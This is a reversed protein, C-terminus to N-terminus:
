PEEPLKWAITLWGDAADFQAVPLAGLEEWQEPLELAELRFEEEFMPGFRRVLLTRVIQQRTGLRQGEEWGPPVAELDGERVARFGSEDHVIRYAATVNMAPHPQDGEFFRRGRLTVRLGGDAFRVVVPLTRDFGIAWPEEGPMAELQEPVQGLFREAVLRFDADHLTLGSLMTQAANNFASEHVNVALDAGEIVPPPSGLAALQDPKAQLGVVRFAEESTSFHLKAPFVNHDTWPRRFRREIEDNAERLLPGVQADMRREARVAARRSAIADAQPQQERARRRATQEVLGGRRRAQIDLIESQTKASARALHDHLGRENMWVRKRTGIDTKGRSLIVVPGNYGTNRTRTTGLYTIDFVAHNENPVLSLSVQGVSHGTGHIDTGLIIERVPATEDVPREVGGGVLRGSATISFNPRALQERVAEILEPAQGISELWGIAEGIQVAREADPQEVHSRLYDALSDVYQVYAKDLEPTQIARAVQIYRLLADRVEAFWVHNLGYHGASFRRYAAELADLDIEPQRIQDRLEDLRLYKAWGQGTAGDRALRKDLGEAAARLQARAGLLDEETIPVFAERATAAVELLHDADPTAAGSQQGLDNALLPNSILAWVLPLLLRRSNM